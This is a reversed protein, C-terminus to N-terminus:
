YRLRGHELLHRVGADLFLLMDRNYGTGVLLDPENLHAEQLKRFVEPDTGWVAVSAKMWRACLEQAELSTPADGQEMIATVEAAIELFRIRQPMFRERWGRLAEAGLYKSYIAIRQAIAARAMYDIMAGDV